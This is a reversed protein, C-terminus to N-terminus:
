AAAPPALPPPTLFFRRRPPPFQPRPRWRYRVPVLQLMLSWAFTCLVLLFVPVSLKAGVSGPQQIDVIEGNLHALAHDDGHQSSIQVDVHHHDYTHSSALQHTEAQGHADAHLHAGIIQALLFSGVVLVVVWHRFSRMNRIM